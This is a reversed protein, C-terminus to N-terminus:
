RSSCRNPSTSSSSLVQEPRRVEKKPSGAPESPRTISDTSIHDRGMYAITDEQGREGLRGGGGWIAFISIVFTAIVIWLMPALAKVNKRMTKLM